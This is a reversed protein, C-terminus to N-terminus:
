ELFYKKGERTVTIPYLKELKDFFLTASDSPFSGTFRENKLKEDMIIVQIDHVDMLMEAIEQLTSHRYRIVREKWSAEEAAKEKKLPSRSGYQLAKEGPQLMLTNESNATDTVRVLGEELTVAVKGRRTTVNFETGLVHVALGNAYVVFPQKKGALERKAVKFFAEGHIRVSRIDQEPFDGSYELRSNANLTVQTGDELLLERIEGFDTRIEHTTGMRYYWGIGALLLVSAAVSLWTLGSRFWKTAISDPLSGRDMEVAINRWMRTREGASWTERFELNRIFNRAREVTERKDPYRGLWEKWFQETVPDPGTVWKVFEEDAIFDEVEFQNYDM